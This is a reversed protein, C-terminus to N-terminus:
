GTSRHDREYLRLSTEYVEPIEIATPQRFGCRRARELLPAWRAAEAERKAVARPNTGAARSNGKGNMGHGGSTPTPPEKSIPQSPNPTVGTSTVSADGTVDSPADRQAKKRARYRAQRANRKERREDKDQLTNKTSYGPLEVTGDDHEILWQSPLRRLLTVPLGTVEALHRLAITVRNLRLAADGTVDGTVSHRLHTDGHRWLKYLAGLAAEHAFPRLADKLIAPVGLSVLHELIDDRLALTRGDDDLDKDMAVYGGM